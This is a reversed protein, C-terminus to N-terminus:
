IVTLSFTKKNQYQQQLMQWITDIIGRRLTECHPDLKIFLNASTKNATLKFETIYLLDKTLSKM